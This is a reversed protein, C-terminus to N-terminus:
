PQTYGTIVGNPNTLYTLAGTPCAKVCSPEGNCLDCKSAKEKLYDYRIRPPNYPCSQICIQCGDCIDENVVRAGTIEDVTIADIPCNLLCLPDVCQLCPQAYADFEYKTVAAMQIRALEHSSVGFNVLSCTHMCQMCGACLEEDVKLVGKAHLIHVSEAQPNQDKEKSDM